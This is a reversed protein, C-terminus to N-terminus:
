QKEICNKRKINEDNKESNEKMGVLFKEEAAGGGGGGGFGVPRCDLVFESQDILDRSFLIAAM